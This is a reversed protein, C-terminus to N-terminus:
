CGEVLEVPPNAAIQLPKDGVNRLLFRATVMKEFRVSGFDILDTQVALKPGGHYQAAASLPSQRPYAYWIAFGALLTISVIRTAFFRRRQLRVQRERRSGVKSQKQGM